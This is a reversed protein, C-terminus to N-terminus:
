LAYGNVVRRIREKQLLHKAERRNSEEEFGNLCACSFFCGPIVM